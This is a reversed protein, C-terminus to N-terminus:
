LPGVMHGGFFPPYLKASFLYSQIRLQVAIIFQPYQNNLSGQKVLSFDRLANALHQRVCVLTM